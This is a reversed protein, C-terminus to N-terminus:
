ISAQNQVSELVSEPSHGAMAVLVTAKVWAPPLPRPGAGDAATDATESRDTVSVPKDDRM